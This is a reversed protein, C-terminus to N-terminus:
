YWKITAINNSLYWLDCIYRYHPGDDIIVKIKSKFNKFKSHANNCQPYDKIISEIDKFFGYMAM